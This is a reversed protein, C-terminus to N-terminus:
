NPINALSYEIALRVVNAISMHKEFAIKRLVEFQGETVSVVFRHWKIAQKKPPKVVPDSQKPAHLNAHCQYCLWVVELPKSYDPHHACLQQRQGCNACQEPKIIKGQLVAANLELRAAKQKTHKM